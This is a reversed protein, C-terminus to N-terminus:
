RTRNPQLRRIACRQAALEPPEPEAVVARVGARASAHVVVGEGAWFAVHGPYCVIDGPRLDAEAIEEGAAEQQWSDRPVLVGVRRFAMHVLGSCDIGRETMGGWEYSAGLYARAEALLDDGVAVPWSGRVPPGTVAHDHVWGPYGYATEIWAWGARSRGVGVPEGRLLQTVQEADPHPDRRVSAVALVCSGSRLSV